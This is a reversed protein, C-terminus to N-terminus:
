APQQGAAGLAAVLVDRRAGVAGRRGGGLVRLGRVLGRHGAAGAAREAEADDLGGRDVRVVGLLGLADEDGLRQERAQDVDPRVALDVVPDGRRPRRVGVARLPREGELGAGREGVALRDVGRRELAAPLAGRGAVGARGHRVVEVLDRAEVLHLVAACGSQGPTSAASGFVSARRARPAPSRTRGACRRARRQARDRRHGARRAVRGVVVQRDAVARERHVARPPVVGADPQHAVVGVAGSRLGVEVGDLERDGRGVGTHQGLVVAEVVALEVPRAHRHRHLGLGAVAFSGFFWHIEFFVAPM